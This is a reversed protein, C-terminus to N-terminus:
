RKSGNNPYPVGRFRNGNDDIRENIIEENM